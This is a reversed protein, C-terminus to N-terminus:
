HAFFLNLARSHAILSKTVGGLVDERLRSHEFAGAVLLGADWSRAQRVLGDYRSLGDRTEVEIERVGHRRLYAVLREPAAVARESARLHAPDQLIVVRTAAKLLPMAARVARAAAPSGNWAIAAGLGLEGPAGSIVLVPVQARLLADAMLGSWSGLAQLTMRGVVVLDAFPALASLDLAHASQEEVLVIRGTDPEVGPGLQGTIDRAMAEVDRRLEAQANHAAERLTPSFGLGSQGPAPDGVVALPPALVVNVQGQAARALEAASALTLADDDAGTLITLISAYSM